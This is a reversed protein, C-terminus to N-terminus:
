QRSNDEPEVTNPVDGGNYGSSAAAASDVNDLFANIDSGYESESDDTNDPQPPDAPSANDEINEIEAFVQNVNPVAM